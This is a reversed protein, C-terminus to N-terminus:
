RLYASRSNRCRRAQPLRAGPRHLRGRRHFEREPIRDLTTPGRTIEDVAVILRFKARRSGGKARQRSLPSTSTARRVPASLKRLAISKHRTAFTAAFQQYSMGRLASAYDILQGVVERRIQRNSRLKCEVLTDVGDGDVYLVDISGSRVRFETVAAGGGCGPVLSGDGALLDRLPAESQYSTLKARVWADDQKILIM